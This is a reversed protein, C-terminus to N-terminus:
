FLPRFRHDDKAPKVCRHIVPLRDPVAIIHQQTLSVFRDKKKQLRKLPFDGHIKRPKSILLFSFQDAGAIWRRRLGKFGNGVSVQDIAILFHGSM